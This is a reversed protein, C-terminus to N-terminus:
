EDPNFTSALIPTSADQEFAVLLFEGVSQNYLRQYAPLYEDNIRRIHSSTEPYRPRPQGGDAVRDEGHIYALFTPIDAGPGLSALINFAGERRGKAKEDGTIVRYDGAGRNYCALTMALQHNFTYPIGIKDLKDGVAFFERVFHSFGLRLNLLQNDVLEKADFTADVGSLRAEQRATSLILQSYGLAGASSGQDPIWTSEKLVQAFFALVLTTRDEVPLALFDSRVERSLSQPLIEFLNPINPNGCSENPLPYRMMEIDALMRDLTVSAAVPNAEDASVRGTWDGWHVFSYLDSEPDYTYSECTALAKLASEIWFMARANDGQRWAVVAKKYNNRFLVEALRQDATKDPAVSEARTRPPAIIPAGGGSEQDKPPTLEAPENQNQAASLIIRSAALAVDRVVAASPGAM